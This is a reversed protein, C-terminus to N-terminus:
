AETEPRFAGVGHMIHRVAKWVIPEPVFVCESMWTDSEQQAVRYLRYWAKIEARFASRLLQFPYLFVESSDRPDFTFLIYDVESSESLTWGTKSTNGECPIVSYKELALEPISNRWWKSCGPTRTKGDIKVVAGRRLTALYDVGSRDQELDTKHVDICGPLLAKLTELDNAERVGRSIQLMTHFDYIM